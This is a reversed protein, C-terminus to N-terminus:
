DHPQRKESLEVIWARWDARGSNPDSPSTGGDSTRLLIKRADASVDVARVDGWRSPSFGLESLVDTMSVIGTKATWVFARVARSAGGNLTVQYSGVALSGDHSAHQAFNTRGNSDPLEGFYVTGHDESWLWAQDLHPHDAPVEAGQGGGLIISCDNNCAFAWRLVAGYQDRLYEPKEDVWRTARERPFNGDGPYDVQLGVATRGDNSVSETIGSFFPDDSPSLPLEQQGTEASWLWPQIGRIGPERIAAGTLYQGNNSSGYLQTSHFEFGPLDQWGEGPVWRVPIIRRQQDPGSEDKRMAVLENREDRWLMTNHAVIEGELEEVFSEGPRWIWGRDLTTFGAVRGDEALSVARYSPSPQGPTIGPTPVPVETIDLEYLDSLKPRQYPCAPRQLGTLRELELSGTGYGSETADWAIVGSACDLELALMGWTQQEVDGPDFAEGFRAGSTVAMEPFLIQDGKRGGVGTLWQQRGEDDYTYWVILAENRSLWQLSFGHGSLDSQYWSGSLGADQTIPELPRGHIPTRCDAAMTRTLREIPLTQQQGFADYSFKGQQCGSFWMQAQGVLEIDVDDPDFAAGFRGGSTTYLEPFEIWEGEDSRHVEGTGILWRQNGSEDYTFWYVQATHEGLIELAWGEGSRTPVYWQASHGPGVVQADEAPPTPQGYAVSAAAVMMVAIFRQMFV